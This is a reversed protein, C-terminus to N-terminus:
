VTSRHRGFSLGQRCLRRHRQSRYRGVPLTEYGGGTRETVKLFYDNRLAAHLKLWTAFVEAASGLPPEGVWEDFFRAVALMDARPAYIGVLSRGARVIRSAPHHSSTARVEGHASLTDAGIAIRDQGCVVVLASM